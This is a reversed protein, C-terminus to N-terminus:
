ILQNKLARERLLRIFDLLIIIIGNRLIIGWFGRKLALPELLAPFPAIDNQSFEKIDEMLDIIVRYPLGAEDRITIVTPSHYSVEKEAYEMEEHFWFLDEAQEGDYAAIGSVQGADVGFHVGGVSFLLLSLRIDVKEKM